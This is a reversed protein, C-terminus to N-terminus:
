IKRILKVQKAFCAHKFNSLYPLDHTRWSKKNKLNKNVKNWFEQLNLDGANLVGNANRIIHKCHCKYLEYDTTSYCDNRAKQFTRAEDRNEFVFLRTDDPASVWENLKYEVPFIGDIKTVSKTVASWKKDHEKFVVKYYTKM